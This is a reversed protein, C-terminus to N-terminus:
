KKTPNVDDYIFKHLHKRTANIDTILYWAKNIIKGEYNGNVPFRCWEVSSIGATFVDTGTKVIESKSMSTEVYPLMKSILYPYKGSGQNQIKVILATLVEKQRETRDFDGNGVKRIRAYAVAQKGNLRQMGARTIPTPRQKKIKAIESAYKNIENIENKKVNVDLGGVGDIIDALGSFNVTYYDRIDMNFNKNITKIALQPGGFMYAANIRGKGHGDINVYTDRIFSSLKIKKHVKDISLIMIADSHAAEYKQRGVDIGFLAINTIKNEKANNKEVKISKKNIPSTENIQNKNKLPIENIPSKNSSPPAKEITKAESIINTKEIPKIQEEYDQQIPTIGLDEDSKSIKNIKVRDLQSYMFLASASFAISTVALVIIAIKVVLKKATGNIKNM